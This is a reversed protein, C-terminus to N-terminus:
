KNHSRNMNNKKIELEKAFIPIQTRMERLAETNEQHATIKEKVTEINKIQINTWDKKYSDHNRYKEIGLMFQHVDNQKDLLEQLYQYKATKINKIKQKGEVFDILKQHPKQTLENELIQIGDELSHLREEAKELVTQHQTMAESIANPTEERAFYNVLEDKLEPTNDELEKKTQYVKPGNATISVYEGGEIMFKKIGEVEGYIEDKKFGKAFSKERQEEAGLKYADSWIEARLQNMTSTRALASTFLSHSGGLSKFIYPEEKLHEYGGLISM